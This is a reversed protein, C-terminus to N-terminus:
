PGPKWLRVYPVALEGAGPRHGMHDVVGRSSEINMMSAIGTMTATVKTCRNM